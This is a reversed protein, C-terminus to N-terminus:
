RYDSYNYMCTYLLQNNCTYRCVLSRCTSLERVDCLPRDLSEDGLFDVDRSTVIGKLIGGLSGTEACLLSPATNIECVYYFMCKHKTRTSQIVSPLCVGTGFDCACM